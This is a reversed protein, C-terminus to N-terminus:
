STDLYLIKSLYDVTQKIFIGIQIDIYRPYYVIIIEHVSEGVIIGVGVVDVFPYTEHVFVGVTDHDPGIFDAMPGGIRLFDELVIVQKVPEVGFHRLFYAPVVRKRKDLPMIVISM